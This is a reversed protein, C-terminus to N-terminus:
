LIKRTIFSKWFQSMIILSVSFVKGELCVVNILQKQLEFEHIVTLKYNFQKSIKKMTSYPFISTMNEIFSSFNGTFPIPYFVVKNDNIVSVCIYVKYLM